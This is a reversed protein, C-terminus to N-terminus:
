RQVERKRVPIALVFFVLLITSQLIIWPLRSSREYAVDLVANDPVQGLEFAQMGNVQTSTLREGNLTARWGPAANEALVLISDSHENSIRAHVALRQAPVTEPNILAGSPDRTYSAAWAPEGPVITTVLPSDSSDLDESQAQADRTQDAGSDALATDLGRPDVRWVTGTENETIRQLGAITDIRAVLQAYEDGQSIPVLVAGIGRESLQFAAASEGEQELGRAIHAVLSAIDDPRGELHSINVVTSTEMLQVGDDHMLQYTVRGVGSPEIALM